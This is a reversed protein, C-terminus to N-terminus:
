WHFWEVRQFLKAMDEIMWSTSGAQGKGKLEIYWRLKEACFDRFKQRDVFINERDKELWKIRERLRKEIARM